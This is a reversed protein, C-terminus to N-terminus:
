ARSVGMTIQAVYGNSSKKLRLMSRSGGNRFISDTANRTDRSPRNSYPSRRFVADTLTDPFFLQGTHVISGGLYVRVHIHVTRGTYWGPYITEFRAVGQADTRQIGRLFTRGQTGEQTFGSYTGGADCHWIDVAGGKIPKCSSVDLVTTRLALPVGPRGERVNRRIKDGELFFPGETMEPTLVCRVLGASVAAPGTGAANASRPDILEIGAAGAGLAAAAVGGFKLLSDRRTLGRDNRGADGAVPDGLGATV